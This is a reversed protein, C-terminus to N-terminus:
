KTDAYFTNRIIAKLKEAAAPLNKKEWIVMVCHNADFHIKEDEEKSEFIDKRVSYIVKKGLGEAFGSEWYAGRNKDTLEAIIFRARKIEVRLHDDILGAEPNELLDNTLEFGTESVAKQFCEYVEKIEDDGFPMAMFVTRSDSIGHQLEEYRAWGKFTLRLVAGNRVGLVIDKDDHTLLGIKCLEVLLCRVNEVTIAGAKAILTSFSLQFNEDPSERYHNGLFLILNNGQEIPIPLTEGEELTKTLDELVVADEKYQCKWITHSLLAREVPNLDSLEQSISQSTKYKGCNSCICLKDCSGIYHAENELNNCVICSEKRESM